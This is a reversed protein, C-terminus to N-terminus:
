SSLVRVKKEVPSHVSIYIPELRTPSPLASVELYLTTATVEPRTYIPKLQNAPSPSPVPSTSAGTVRMVDATTSQTVTPEVPTPMMMSTDISRSKFLAALTM